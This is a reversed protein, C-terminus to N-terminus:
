QGPPSAARTAGPRWSLVCQIGLFRSSVGGELEVLSARFALEPTLSLRDGLRIEHGLDLGVLPGSDHAEVRQTGSWSRYQAGLLLRLRTAHGFSVGAMLNAARFSEDVIPSKVQNPQLEGILQFRNAPDLGIRAVLSPVVRGATEGSVTMAAPGIGAGVSLARGRPVAREDQEAAEDAAAPGVALATAAGLCLLVGPRM